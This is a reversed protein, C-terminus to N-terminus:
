KRVRGEVWVQAGWVGMYPKEVQAFARCQALIPCGGCLYDAARQSPPNAEDYDVYRSPNDQCNSKKNVLADQLQGQAEVKTLKILTVTERKARNKARDIRCWENRCQRCRYFKDGKRNQISINAGEIVHGKPCTDGVKMRPQVSTNIM